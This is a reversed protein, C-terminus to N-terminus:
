AVCALRGLDSALALMRTIRSIDPLAHPHRRRHREFLSRGFALWFECL